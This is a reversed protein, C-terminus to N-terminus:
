IHYVEDERIRIVKEVCIDHVTCIPTCWGSPNTWTTMATSVLINDNNEKSLEWSQTKWDKKSVPSVEVGDNREPGHCRYNLLNVQRAERKSYAQCEM